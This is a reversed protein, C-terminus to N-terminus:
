SQMLRRKKRKDETYERIFANAQEDEAVSLHKIRDENLKIKGYKKYNLIKHDEGRMMLEYLTEESIRIESDDALLLETESAEEYDITLLDQIPAINFSREMKM